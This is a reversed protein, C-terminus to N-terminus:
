CGPVSPDAERERERENEEAPAAAAANGIPGAPVAACTPALAAASISEPTPAEWASPTATEM